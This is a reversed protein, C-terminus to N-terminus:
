ACLQDQHAFAKKAFSAAAKKRQQLQRDTVCIELKSNMKPITLFCWKFLIFSTMMACAVNGATTSTHSCGIQQCTNSARKGLGTQVPAADRNGPSSMLHFSYSQTCRGHIKNDVHLSRLWCAAWTLIHPLAWQAPHMAHSWLTLGKAFRNYLKEGLCVGNLIGDLDPFIQFAALHAEAISWNGSFNASHVKTTVTGGGQDGLVLWEGPRSGLSLRGHFRQILLSAELFLFDLTKTGRGRLLVATRTPLHSTHRKGKNGSAILIGM